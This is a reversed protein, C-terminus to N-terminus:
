DQPSLRGEGPSCNIRQYMRCVNDDRYFAGRCVCQDATTTTTTTATTTTDGLCLSNADSCRGFLCPSRLEGRREAVVVCQLLIPSSRYQLQVTISSCCSCSCSCYYCVYSVIIHYYLPAICTIYFDNFLYTFL